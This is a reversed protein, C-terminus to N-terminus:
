QVFVICCHSYAVRMSQVYFVDDALRVNYDCSSTGWAKELSLPELWTTDGNIDADILDGQGIHKLSLYHTVYFKFARYLPTCVDTWHRAAYAGHSDSHEHAVYHVAPM